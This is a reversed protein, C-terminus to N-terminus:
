IMRRVLESISQGRYGYEGGEKFPRKTSKRFGRRPPHLSFYPKYIRWLAKIEAEGNLIKKVLDEVSTTGLEKLVEDPNVDQRKEGRKSILQLLLQEDPEGWTICKEVKRLMGVTSPQNPVLTAWCSRKLNLMRLTNEIVSSLGSPGRLRVVLFCSANGDSM